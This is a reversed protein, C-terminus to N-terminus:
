HTSLESQSFFACLSHIISRASPGYAKILVDSYTLLTPDESMIRALMKATDTRSEIDTGKRTTDGLFSVCLQHHARLLSASAHRLDLWCGRVRAARRPARRRYPRQDQIDLM